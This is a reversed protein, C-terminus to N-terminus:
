TREAATTKALGAPSTDPTAPRVATSNWALRHVTIFATQMHSGGPGRWRDGGARAGGSRPGLAVVATYVAAHTRARPQRRTAKARLKM